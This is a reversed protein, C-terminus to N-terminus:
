DSPRGVMTILLECLRAELEDLRRKLEEDHSERGFSSKLLPTLLGSPLSQLSESSDTPSHLTRDSSRSTSASSSASAALAAAAAEEEERRQREREELRRAVEIEVAKAIQSHLTLYLTMKLSHLVWALM